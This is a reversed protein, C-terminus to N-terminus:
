DVQFFRIRRGLIVDSNESFQCTFVDRVNLQVKHLKISLHNITVLHFYGLPTNNIEKEFDTVAKM